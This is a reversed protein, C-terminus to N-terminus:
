DIREFTAHVPGLSDGDEDRGGFAKRGAIEFTTHFVGEGTPMTVNEFVCLRDGEQVEKELSVDGIRIGAKGAAKAVFPRGAWIDGPLWKQTGFPELTIRYPGSHVM